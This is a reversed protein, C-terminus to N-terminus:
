APLPHQMPGGAAGGGHHVYAVWGWPFAGSQQEQGASTASSLYAVVSAEAESSTM